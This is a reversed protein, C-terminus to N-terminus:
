LWGCSCNRFVGNWLKCRFFTDELVNADLMGLVKMLDKFNLSASSVQISVEDAAPTTKELQKYYLSEILGPTALDLAFAHDHSSLRIKNQSRSLPTYKKLKYVYRKGQRLVIEDDQSYLCDLLFSEANCNEQPEIDILLCRLQSFEHRIVRVLGWISAGKLNMPHDYGDIHQTGQTVFLLTTSQNKRFKDIAKVLNVCSYVIEPETQELQENSEQLGLSLIVNLHEVNSFPAILAEAEVLSKLKDPSFLNKRQIFKSFNLCEVENFFGALWIQGTENETGITGTTGKLPCEEWSPQYLLRATKNLSSKSIARCILGKIQVLVNGIEDCIALDGILKTETQQLCRAYCFVRNGPSQQFILKKLKFPIILGDNFAAPDITGILTQFAADLLTPNLIYDKGFDSSHIEALAEGRGRWLKKINRFMPGYELGQIAFQRYISDEDLFLGKQLESFNLKSAKSNNPACKGIANCAWEFNERDQQSHVSFLRTEPQLSIQLLPENEESIALAQKFELDELICSGGGYHASYIELGAEIYAAAPFIVTEDIKHDNLWPFYHSNIEVQWAPEPIKLRRSLMVHHQSSLRYQRSEESEIWHSKKQWPYTPM